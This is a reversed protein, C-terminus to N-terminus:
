SVAFKQRLWYAIGYGLQETLEVVTRSPIKLPILLPQPLLSCINHDSNGVSIINCILHMKGLYSERNNPEFM